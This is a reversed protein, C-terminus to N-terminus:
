GKKTPLVNPTDDRPNFTDDDAREANPNGDFQTAKRPTSSEQAQRHDSAKGLDKQVRAAIDVQDEASPEPAPTKDVPDSRNSNTMM